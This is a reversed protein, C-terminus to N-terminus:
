EVDPRAQDIKSKMNKAAELNSSHITINGSPWNGTEAMWRVLATGDPNLEGTVSNLGMDHDLSLHHVVGMELLLQANIASRVIVWEEWGEEIDEWSNYPGIRMDDFYLNIKTM